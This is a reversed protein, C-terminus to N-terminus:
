GFPAPPSQLFKRLMKRFTLKKSTPQKSGLFFKLMRKEFLIQTVFWDLDLHHKGYDVVLVVVNVDFVRDVFEVLGVVPAELLEYVLVGNEMLLVFKEPGTRQVHADFHPEVLM